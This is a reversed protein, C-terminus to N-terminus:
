ANPLAAHSAKALDALMAAFARSTSPFEYLLCDAVATADQAVMADRLRRLQADLSQVTGDLDIGSAALADRSLIGLALGQSIATQVSGWIALAQALLDYAERGQGRQLLQAAGRQISEANLVADAANAFTDRLLEAPHVTACRLEGAPRAAFEASALDEESWAVGDVSVEIILRGAREAVVSAERLASGVTDATLNTDCNDLLIRM